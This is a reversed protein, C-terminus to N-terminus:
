REVRLPVNQARVFGWQDQWYLTVWYLGPPANPGLPIEHRETRARRLPAVVQQRQVITRATGDPARLDVWRVLPMRTIRRAEFRLEFVVPGIPDDPPVECCIIDVDIFFGPDLVGPLDCFVYTAGAENQGAPGDQNVAGVAACDGSIDVGFGFGDGFAGTDGILKIATTWDGGAAKRFVYAAGSTGARGDALWAGVVAAAGDLGVSQGFQDGEEGDFAILKAAPLWVGSEADREFVYAAGADEGREDEDRAGVVLRDGSIDISFGFEDQVQGDFAHLKAEEVWAGDVRRFVYAAGANDGLDDDRMAGVALADGDLAVASGFEDGSQGDSAGLLADQVWGGPDRRFVYVMGPGVFTPPPEFPAGVAAYDGSITVSSGFADEPLTPTGTVRTVVNWAGGDRELLYASGSIFPGPDYVENLTGVIARDGDLDVSWGFGGNFSPDSPFVTQALSWLDGDRDYVLAEGANSDVTDARAAGSLITDEFIAVSFGTNEFPAAGPNPLEGESTACGAALFAVFLLASRM